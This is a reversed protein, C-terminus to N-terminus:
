RGRGNPRAVDADRDGHEGGGGEKIAGDDCNHGGSAAKNNSQGKKGRRAVDRSTVAKRPGRGRM